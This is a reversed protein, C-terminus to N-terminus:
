RTRNAAPSKPPVFFSTRVRYFRSSIAFQSCRLSNRRVPCLAQNALRFQADHGRLIPSLFGSRPSGTVAFRSPRSRSPRAAFAGFPNGRPKSSPENTTRPSWSSPSLAPRAAQRSAVPTLAPRFPLVLSRTPSSLSDPSQAALSMSCPSPRRLMSALSESQRAPASRLASGSSRPPRPCLLRNKLPLAPL